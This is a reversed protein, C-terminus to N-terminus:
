NMHLIDKVRWLITRGKGGKQSAQGQAIFRNFDKFDKPYRKEEEEDKFFDEGTFGNKSVEIASRSLKFKQHNHLKRLFM